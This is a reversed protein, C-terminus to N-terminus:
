VNSGHFPCTVHVRGGAGTWARFGSSAGVGEGKDPVVGGGGGAICVVKDGPAVKSLPYVHTGGKNIVVTRPPPPTEPGSPTPSQTAVSSAGHTCAALAVALLLACVVRGV